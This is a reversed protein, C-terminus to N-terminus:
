SPSRLSQEYRRLALQGAVGYAAWMVSLALGTLGDRYGEDRIFCDVFLRPIRRATALADFRNGRDYLAQGEHRAYRWHKGVLEHVSGGWFHDLHGEAPPIAVEHYTERLRFLDHINPGPDARKRNVAVAKSQRLGGWITGRLPKGRVYFQSRANVIGADPERRVTCVISEALREPIREDPDVMVVWDHTAQAMAFM